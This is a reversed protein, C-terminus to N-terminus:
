GLLARADRHFRATARAAARRAGAFRNQAGGVGLDRGRASTADALLRCTRDHTELDGLMWMGGHLYVIVRRGNEPEYLRLAVMGAPGDIALDTVRRLEPGRPRELARARAQARVEDVDFMVADGRTGAVWQDLEPDALGKIEGAM